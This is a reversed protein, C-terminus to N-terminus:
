MNKNNGQNYAAQKLREIENKLNSIENMLFAKLAVMQGTFDEVKDPLSPTKVNKSKHTEESIDVQIDKENGKLSESNVTEYEKEDEVCLQDSVVFFLNM